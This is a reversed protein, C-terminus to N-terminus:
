IISQDTSAKTHTSNRILDVCFGSSQVASKICFDDVETGNPVKLATTTEAFHEPHSHVSPASLLLGETLSIDAM